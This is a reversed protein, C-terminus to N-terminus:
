LDTKNDTRKEADRADLIAAVLDEPIEPLEEAKMAGKASEISLKYAALYERCERCVKMHLEFVMRKALPLEGELYQMIFSEFEECSIMTPMKFLWRKIQSKQSRATM